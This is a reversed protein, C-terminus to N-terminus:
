YEYKERNILKGYLNSIQKKVIYYDYMELLKISNEVLYKRLTENQCLQFIADIFEKDVNDLIIAHKWNIAKIGEIGKKTSVVPIKNSMYDLIKVRVGVTGETIPCIGIDAASILEMINEVYGLSVINEKKFIPVRNGAIVFLIDKNNLCKKAIHNVIIEIAQKNPIHYYSGHFIVITKNIDLKYKIRTELKNYNCKNKIPIAIPITTIKNFNIKYEAILNKTNQSSISIIHDVKKCATREIIYLFAELPMCLYRILPNFSKIVTRITKSEVNHSDYVIPVGKSIFSTSIIGWPFSIQILDINEKRIIKRVKLVYFLNLDSLFWLNKNFLRLCRFYYIKHNEYNELKNKYTSPILLIINFTPSLQRVLTNLRYGAGTSILLMEHICIILINM